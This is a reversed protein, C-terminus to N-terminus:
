RAIVMGKRDFVVQTNYLFYGNEPCDELPEMKWPVDAITQPSCPFIELSNAVLYIQNTQAGCSLIQM